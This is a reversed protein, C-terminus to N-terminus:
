RTRTRRTAKVARKAEDATSDMSLVGDKIMDELRDLAAQWSGLGTHRYNRFLERLTTDARVAALLSSTGQEDLPGWRNRERSMVVAYLVGDRPVV